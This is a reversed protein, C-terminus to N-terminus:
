RSRGHVGRIYYQAENAASLIDYLALLILIRASFRFFVERISRFDSLFFGSFTPFFHYVDQEIM